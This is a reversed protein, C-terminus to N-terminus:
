QARDRAVRCLIALGSEVKPNWCVLQMRWVARVERLAMPAIVSESISAGDMAVDVLSLGELALASEGRVLFFGHGSGSFIGALTTDRVVSSEAQGPCAICSLGDATLFEFLGYSRHQDHLRRDAVPM